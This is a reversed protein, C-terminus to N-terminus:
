FLGPISVGGTLDKTKAEKDKKALTNAENLAIKLLDQLIDKNDKELLEENIEISVVEHAGNIAVHIDKNSAYGDYVSENLEKEVKQINKQMMQAQKMLKGLYM